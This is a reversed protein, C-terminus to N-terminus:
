RQYVIKIPDKLNRKQIDEWDFFISEKIMNSNCDFECEYLPQNHKHNLIYETILCGCSTKEYYFWWNTDPNQNNEDYNYNDKNKEMEEIKDVAKKLSTYISITNYTREWSSEVMEGKYNRRDLKSWVELKYVNLKKSISLLTFIKSYDNTTDEIIKKAQIEGQETLYYGKSQHKHPIFNKNHLHTQIVLHKERLTELSRYYSAYRNKDVYVNKNKSYIHKRIYYPELLTIVSKIPSAKIWKKKTYRHRDELTFLAVLIEKQQKSLKM